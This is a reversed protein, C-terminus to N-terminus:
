YGGSGSGEGSLKELSQEALESRLGERRSEREGKEWERLAMRKLRQKEDIAEQLKKKEDELQQLRKEQSPDLGSPMREGGPVIAPM